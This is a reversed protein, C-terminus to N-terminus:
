VLLLPWIFLNKGKGREKDQKDREATDLSIFEELEM